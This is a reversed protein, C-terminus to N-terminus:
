RRNRGRPKKPKRNRKLTKQVKQSIIDPLKPLVQEVKESSKNNRFWDFGPYNGDADAPEMAYPYHVDEYAVANFDTVYEVEKLIDADFSEFPIIAVEDESYVINGDKLIIKREVNKLIKMEVSGYGFPKAYGLKQMHSKGNHFLRNLDIASELRQLEEEILNEYFVKFRFEKGEKLPRITVNLKSSKEASVTKRDVLHHWYYKRGRIRRDVDDFRGKENDKGDTSYTYFELNSLHPGLLESLTIPDQYWGKDDGFGNVPTADTFRIRSSHCDKSNKGVFGFVSCTECCSDMSECAEYGEIKDGLTKYNLYKGIHAPSYYFMGDANPEKSRFVPYVSNEDEFNYNSYFDQAQVGEYGPMEIVNVKDDQYNRIVNKLNNLEGESIPRSEGKPKFVFIGETFGGSDNPHPMMRFIYGRECANSSKRISINIAKKRKKFFVISFYVTSGSDLIEGNVHIKKTSVDYSADKCKFKDANQFYWNGDICKLIGPDVLKAQTPTLRSFVIQKGDISNLCSNNLVEHMFRICGRLESGPIVPEYSPINSGDIPETLNHYSYFDYSKHEPVDSKIYRDNSTNPIFLPTKTVLSVELYGTHRGQYFANMDKREDSHNKVTKENKLSFFIYPNVFTDSM